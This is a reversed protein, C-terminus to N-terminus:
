GKVTSVEVDSLVIEHRRCFSNLVVLLAVPSWILHEFLVTNHIGDGDRAPLSPVKGHEVNKRLLIGLLHLVTLHIDNNSIRIHCCVLTALPLRVLIQLEKTATMYLSLWSLDVHSARKFASKM